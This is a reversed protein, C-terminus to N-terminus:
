EGDKVESQLWEKTLATAFGKECLFVSPLECQGNTGLYKCVNCVKFEVLFRALGEDNLTRIYDLNTVIVEEFNSGSNCELCITTEDFNKCNECHAM